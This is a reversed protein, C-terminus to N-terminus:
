DQPAHSAMAPHCIRVTKPRRQHNRISMFSIIGSTLVLGGCFLTSMHYTVHSGFLGLAAIVILGAARSVANNIGSAIGSDEQEVSSMVATTLPAVTTALGLGFLAVGPFIQPLYHMGVRLHVLWFIGAASLLPGITMPLRPGIKGALKGMRGSLLFLLITIPLLSMGASLSSYHLSNQMYINLTFFFGSFAGYLAFTALNAGSFNRSTFLQLHVMPDRERKEAVIFLVAAIGGLLLAAIAYLKWGTAPGEILGLTIGALAIVGLAAGLGDVQRPMADKTERIGFHAFFGCLVVLPVNIIFIWRWSAADILYGGLLPGLASAIGSWAAWQGIAQGRDARPFNTNIIALAGPVLLAGCLGQAIRALILATINPAIGCALSALGFGVLGTLYMRKRGFIDGLSGGLLILSSLSLLYGDIIWQLDAFNAHLHQSISPLALNVVSGDLIVIGSGIITALLVLSRRQKM